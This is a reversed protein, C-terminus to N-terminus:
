HISPLMISKFKHNLLAILEKQNYSYIDPINLSIIQKELYLKPFRKSLETRQEDEMVVILDAWLIQKKTVPSKNYLGSSKTDFQNKFLEETTKSRNENQNCLFLIKM